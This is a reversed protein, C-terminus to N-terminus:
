SRGGPRASTLEYPPDTVISDVSADALTKLVDRSDGTLIRITM